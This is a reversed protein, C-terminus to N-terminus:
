MQVGPQPRAAQVALLPHAQRGVGSASVCVCACVCVCVCLHLPRHPTLRSAPCVRRPLSHAGRISVLNLPNYIPKDGEDEEEDDEEMADEEQAAVLDRELEEYTRAQKKEIMKATEEIADRILEGVRAAQEELLATERQHGGGGGGEGGGGGGEGAKAREKKPVQDIPMTKLLFLREARQTLNGGVKLGVQSLQLKLAEMGMAELEAASGVGTLDVLAAAGGGGAEGGAQWRSVEGKDWRSAFDDEAAEILRTLPVLPQTRRLFSSFYTVLQKVYRPYAATLATAKPVHEAAEISKHLYRGRPM